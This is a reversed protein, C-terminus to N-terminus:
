IKIAKVFVGNQPAMSIPKFKVKIDLGIETRPGPILKYAQLLRAIAMKAELLAFRLGVCNRPGAGFPQFAISSTLTKDKMFRDPIFKEPEEWHNPDHHLQYVGINVGTGKPIIFVKGDKEYRYDELAERSIFDTIPPYFRLTENIVSDMFPTENVLNYELRGDRKFIGNIEQRLKEQLNLDNVLIHAMFGLLTSTTEYGADFFLAANAAVEADTMYHVKRGIVQKTSEANNNVPDKENVAATLKETDIVKMQEHTMKAEIMQQLLDNRSWPNEPDFMDKRRKSIINKIVNHQYSMTALGLSRM